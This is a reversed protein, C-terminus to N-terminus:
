RVMQVEFRLGEKQHLASIITFLDDATLNGNPSCMRMLSQPSKHVLKGLGEFGIAANIYDVLLIKGTGTDGALMCEISERLLGERFAADRLAREQVIEKFDQTM